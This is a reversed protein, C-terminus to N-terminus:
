YKANNGNADGKGLRRHATDAQSVYPYMVNSDNTNVHGFQACHGVEHAAVHWVDFRDPDPTVGSVVNQWTWSDNDFRINCELLENTGVSYWSQAIAVTDGDGGMAETSGWDIGSYGDYGVSSVTQRGSYSFDLTSSDSISSCYTDNNEWEAHANRLNTETLDKNIGSPISDYNLWWSVAHEWKFDFPASEDVGCSAGSRQPRLRHAPAATMSPRSHMGSTRGSPRASSGAGAEPLTARLTAAYDIDSAFYLRGQKDFYELRHARGLHCFARAFRAGSARRLTRVVGVRGPEVVESGGAPVVFAPPAGPYTGPRKVDCPIGDARLSAVSTGGAASGALLSVSLIALASFSRTM